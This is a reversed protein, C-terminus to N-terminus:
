SKIHHVWNMLEPKSVKKRKFPVKDKSLLVLRGDQTLFHIEERMKLGNKMRMWFAIWATAVIPIVGFFKRRNVKMPRLM